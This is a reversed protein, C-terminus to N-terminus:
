ASYWRVSHFFKRRLLAWPMWATLSPGSAGTVARGETGWSPVGRDCCPSEDGSSRLVRRVCDPGYGAGAGPKFPTIGALLAPSRARPRASAWSGGTPFVPQDAARASSAVLVEVPWTSRADGTQVVAAPFFVLFANRGEWHAFRLPLLAPVHSM